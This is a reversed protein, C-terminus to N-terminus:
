EVEGLAALRAEMQRLSWEPLELPQSAVDYGPWYGSADCDVVQRLAAYAAQRGLNMERPHTVESITHGSV